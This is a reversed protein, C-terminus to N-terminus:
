LQNMPRISSSSNKNDKATSSLMDVPADSNMDDVDDKVGLMNKNQNTARQFDQIVGGRTWFEKNIRQAWAGNDAQYDIM